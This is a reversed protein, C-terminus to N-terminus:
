KTIGWGKSSSLKPLVLTITIKEDTAGSVVIDGTAVGSTSPADRSFIEVMTGSASYINSTWGVPASNSGHGSDNAVMGLVLGGTVTPTVTHFEPSNTTSSYLNSGVVDFLSSNSVGRYVGVVCWYNKATSYVNTLTWIVKSAGAEVPTVLHLMIFAEHASTEIDVGSGLPNIWGDIDAVDVSASGAMCFLVLVDGALPVSGLTFTVTKKSSETNSTGQIFSVM